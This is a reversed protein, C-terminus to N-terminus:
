PVGVPYKTKIEYLKGEYEVSLSYEVSEYSSFHDPPIETRKFSSLLVDVTQHALLDRLSGKWATELEDNRALSFQGQIMGGDLFILQSFIASSQGYPYLFINPREQDQYVGAKKLQEVLSENYGISNKGQATIPIAVDQYITSYISNLEGESFSQTINLYHEPSMTDRMLYYHSRVGEIKSLSPDFYSKRNTYFRLTGDNNMGVVIGGNYYMQTNPVPKFGMSRLEMVNKEPLPNQFVSTANKFEARENESYRHLSNSRKKLILENITPFLNEGKFSFIKQFEDNFFSIPQELRKSYTVRMNGWGIEEFTKKFYSLIPFYIDRSKHDPEVVKFIDREVSLFDKYEFYAFTAFHPEIFEYEIQAVKNNRFVGKVKLQVPADQPFLNKTSFAVEQRSDLSYLEEPSIQFTVGKNELEYIAMRAEHAISDKPYLLESLQNIFLNESEPRAFNDFRGSLIITNGKVEFTVRAQAARKKIEAILLAAEKARSSLDITMFVETKQTFYGYRVGIRTQVGDKIGRGLTEPSVATEFEIYKHPENLLKWHQTKLTVQTFGIPFFSSTEWLDSLSGPTRRDATSVIKLREYLNLSISKISRRQVWGIEKPSFEILVKEEVPFIALARGVRGNFLKVEGGTMHSNLAILEHSSAEVVDVKKLPVYHEHSGRETKVILREGPIDWRLFEGILHSHGERNKKYSVKDGPNPEFFTPFKEPNSVLSEAFGEVCIKLDDTDHALGISGVCLFTLFLLRQM